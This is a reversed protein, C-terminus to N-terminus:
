GVLINELATGDRRCTRALLQYHAELDTAAVAHLQHCLQITYFLAASTKILAWGYDLKASEERQHRARSLARVLEVDYSRVAWEKDRFQKWEDQSLPGMKEGELGEITPNGFLGRQFRRDLQLSKQFQTRWQSDALDRNISQITDSTMPGSLNHGQVIRGAHLLQPYNDGMRDPFATTGMMPTLQLAM